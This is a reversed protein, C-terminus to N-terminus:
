ECPVMYTMEEETMGAMVQVKPATKPDSFVEAPHKTFFREQGFDKEIM